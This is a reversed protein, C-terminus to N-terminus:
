QLQGIKKHAMQNFYHEVCFKGKVLIANLFGAGIVSDPSTKIKRRAKRHVTPM